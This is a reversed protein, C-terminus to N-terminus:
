HRLWKVTGETKNSTNFSGHLLCALNILLIMIIGAVLSSVTNLSFNDAILAAQSGLTYSPMVGMIGLLFDMYLVTRIICLLSYWVKHRFVPGLFSKTYAKKGFNTYVAPKVGSEKLHLYSSAAARTSIFMSSVFAAVILFVFDTGFALIIIASLLFAPILQITKLIYLITRNIPKPLKAALFGLAMGLVWASFSSIALILVSNKMANTMSPLMDYVPKYYEAFFPYTIILVFLVLVFSLSFKKM